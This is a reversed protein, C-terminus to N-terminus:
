QVARRANVFGAGHFEDHGVKGEDTASQAGAGAAVGLCMAAVFAKTM